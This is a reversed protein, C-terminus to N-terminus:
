VKGMDIRFYEHGLRNRLGIMDEWPIEPHLSKIQPSLSRAAEGIITLPRMVANQLLEDQQFQERSVGSTFSVIKRAAILIDLLYAEDRWM